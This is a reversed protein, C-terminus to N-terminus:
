MNNKPLAKEALLAYTNNQDPDKGKNVVMAADKAYPLGKKYEGMRYM